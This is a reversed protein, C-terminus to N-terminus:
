LRTQFQLYLRESSARGPYGNLEAALALEGEVPELHRRRVQEAADLPLAELLGHLRELRAANLCRRAPRERLRRTGAMPDNASTSRWAKAQKRQYKHYERAEKDQQKYYHKWPDKAQSSETAVAASLVAVLRFTSLKVPM